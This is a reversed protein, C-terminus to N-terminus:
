SRAQPTYGADALKQAYAELQAKHKSVFKERTPALHENVKQYYPAACDAFAQGYQLSLAQEKKPDAKSPVGGTKAFAHWAYTASYMLNAQEGGDNKKGLELPTKTRERMCEAVPTRAALLTENTRTARKSAEFQSLVANQPDHTDMLTMNQAICKGQETTLKPKDPETASHNFGYKQIMKLDVLNYNQASFSEGGTPMNGTVGCAKWANNAIFARVQQETYVDDGHLPLWSSLADDYISRGTANKTHIASSPAQKGTGETPQSAAPVDVRVSKDTLGLGQIVGVSAGVIALAVGSGAVAKTIQHKRHQRKIRQM